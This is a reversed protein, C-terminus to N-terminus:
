HEPSGQRARVKIQLTNENKRVDSFVGSPPYHGAFDAAPREVFSSSRRVWCHEQHKQAHLLRRPPIETQLPRQVCLQINRGANKIAVAMTSKNASLLLNRGSRCFNLLSCYRREHLWILTKTKIQMARLSAHIFHQFSPDCVSLDHIGQVHRSDRRFCTRTM